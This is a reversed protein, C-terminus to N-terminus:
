EVLGSANLNGVTVIATGHPEPGLSRRAVAVQLMISYVDLTSEKSTVAGIKQVHVTRVGQGERHGGFLESASVSRTNPREPAFGKLDELRLTALSEPSIMTERFWEITHEDVLFRNLKDRAMIRAGNIIAAGYVNADQEFFTDYTLAYRVTLVRQLAARMRPLFNYSNFAALFWEFFVSFIIAHLPTPFVQFGGDGTPIFIRADERRFLTPESACALRKAEEYLTKFICPVLDQTIRPMRGYQYIDIGLVARKTEKTAFYDALQARVATITADDPRGRVHSSVSEGLIGFIENCDVGATM